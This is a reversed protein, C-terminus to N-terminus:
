PAELSELKGESFKDANLSLIQRSASNQLSRLPYFFEFLYNFNLLKAALLLSVLGARGKSSDIM